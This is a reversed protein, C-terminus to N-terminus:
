CISMLYSYITAHNTDLTSEFYPQVELPSLGSINSAQYNDQTTHMDHEHAVLM